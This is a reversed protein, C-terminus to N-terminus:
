KKLMFKKPPFFAELNSKCFRCQKLPFDIKMFDCFFLSTSKLFEALKSYCFDLTQLSPLEDNLLELRNNYIGNDLSNLTLLLFFHM